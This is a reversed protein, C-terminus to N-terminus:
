NVIIKRYSSVEMALEPIRGAPWTQNGSYGMLYGMFYGMIIGKKKDIIIYIYDIM